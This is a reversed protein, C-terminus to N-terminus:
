ISTKKASATTAPMMLKDSRETVRPARAHANLQARVPWAVNDEM